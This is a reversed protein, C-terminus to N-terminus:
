VEFRRNTRVVRTTNVVPKRLDIDQAYYVMQGQLSLFFLALSLDKLYKGPNEILSLYKIAVDVNNRARLKRKITKFHTNVTHTSIFNKDAIEKSALGKLLDKVMENERKTLSVMKLYKLFIIVIM